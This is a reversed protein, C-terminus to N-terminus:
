CINKGMMVAINVALSGRFSPQKTTRGRSVLTTIYILKNNLTRLQAQKTEAYQLHRKCIYM